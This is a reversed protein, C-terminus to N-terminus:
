RRAIAITDYARRVPFGFRGLLKWAVGNGKVSSGPIYRHYGPWELSEFKCFVLTLGAEECLANMGEPYVRWCDIPAEHYPYSVPVITIVVGGPRCIRAVEKIWLWPRPVHELVNGSLVIDYGESAVPFRHPDNTVFTVNPTGNGYEGGVIDLTDWKSFFTPDVSARFTSSPQEPGIELVACSPQFYKLAYKRFLLLTNDHM